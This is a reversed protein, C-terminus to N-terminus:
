EPTGNTSGVKMEIEEGNDLVYVPLEGIPNLKLKGDLPFFPREKLFKTHGVLQDLTVVRGDILENDVAYATKAMTIVALTEVIEKRQQDGADIRVVPIAAVSLVALLVVAAVIARWAFGGTRTSPLIM